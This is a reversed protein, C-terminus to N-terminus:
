EGVCNQLMMGMDGEDDVAGGLEQSVGVVDVEVHCLADSCDALPQARSIPQSHVNPNLQTLFQLMRHLYPM